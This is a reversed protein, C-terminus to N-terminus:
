SDRRNRKSFDRHAFHEKLKAVKNARFAPDANLKKMRESAAERFGPRAHLAMIRKLHKQYTEPDSLIRTRKSVRLSSIARLKQEIDNM